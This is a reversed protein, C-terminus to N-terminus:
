YKIKESNLIKFSVSVIEKIPNIVFNKDPSYLPIEGVDFRQNDGLGLAKVVLSQNKFYFNWFNTQLFFECKQM